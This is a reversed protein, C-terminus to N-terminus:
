PISLPRALLLRANPSNVRQQTYSRVINTHKAGLTPSWRAYPYIEISHFFNWGGLAAFDVVQLHFWDNLLVEHTIEM